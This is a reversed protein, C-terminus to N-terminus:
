KKNQGDESEVYRSLAPVFMSGLILQLPHVLMLPACYLAMYPSGEFVTNIMPLGFALTKQSAAFTAAVTEKRSFGFEPLSFAKFLVGLSLLHMAPILTLLTLAHRLELGFGSSFANCFSHWVIGLLIV